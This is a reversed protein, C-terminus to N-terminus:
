KKGERRINLLNWIGPMYCRMIWVSVTDRAHMESVSAVSNGHAIGNNLSPPGAMGKEVPISGCVRICASILMSMCVYFRHQKFIFMWERLMMVAHMRGIRIREWLVLQSRSVVINGRRCVHVCRARGSLSVYWGWLPIEFFVPFFKARTNKRTWFHVVHSSTKTIPVDRAQAHPTNIQIMMMMM